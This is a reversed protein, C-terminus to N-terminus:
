SAGTVGSTHSLFLGDGGEGTLYRARGSIATRVRRQRALNLIKFVVGHFTSAAALKRTRLSACNHVGNHVKTLLVTRSQHAFFM